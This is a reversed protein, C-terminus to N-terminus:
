FDIFGLLPGGRLRCARQCARDCADLKPRCLDAPALAARLCAEMKWTCHRGCDRWCADALWISAARKGAPYPSVHVIGKGKPGPFVVHPRNEYTYDGAAAHDRLSAGFLAALLLLWAGFTRM